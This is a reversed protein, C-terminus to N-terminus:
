AILGCIKILFRWSEFLKMAADPEDLPWKAAIKIQPGEILLGAFAKASLGAIKIYNDKEFHHQWPDDQIGLYYDSGALSPYAIILRDQFDQRHDGSIQLTCSFYNGWWFMTRIAFVADTRFNRPYDLILYPLGLYNEGKSIKPPIMFLKELSGATADQQLAQVEQLLARIKNLVVNKTLIIEANNMLERETLSFHIKSGNM